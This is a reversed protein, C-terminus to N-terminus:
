CPRPSASVPSSASSSARARQRRRGRLRPHPGPHVGHRGPRHGHRHRGHAPAPHAAGLPAAIVVWVPALYELSVAVTVNSLRVALYYFLMEVAVVFGVLWIRRAHGSRRVEAPGGTLFFFVALVAGALGMRLVVLMSAPMTSVQILTAATGLILSAISIEAYGRLRKDGAATVAPM